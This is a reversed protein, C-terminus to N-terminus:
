SLQKKFIKPAERTEVVKPEPKQVPAPPTVPEHREESKLHKKVPATGTLGKEERLQPKPAPPNVAEQRTPDDQTARKKALLSPNYM